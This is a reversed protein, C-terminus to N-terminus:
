VSSIMQILHKETPDSDQDEKQHVEQVLIEPKLKQDKM